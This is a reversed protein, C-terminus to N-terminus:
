CPRPIKVARGSAIVFFQATTAPKLRGKRKVVHFPMVVSVGYFGFGIFM